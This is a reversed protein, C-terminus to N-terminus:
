EWGSYVRVLHDPNISALLGRLQDCYVSILGDSVYRSAVTRVHQSMFTFFQEDCFVLQTLSCLKGIHDLPTYTKKVFQSSAQAHALRLTYGNFLTGNWRRSSPVSGVFTGLGPELSEFELYMGLLNYTENLLEPIWLGNRDAFILDDGCCFFKVTSNIDDISLGHRWGHYAFAIMHCLSNDITTNCHGSPQGVLRLFWGAVDTYGNYMMSYYRYCRRRYQRSMGRCRWACIISAIILPFNADWQSGDACYIFKSFSKLLQHLKTIDNGPTIFQVFVPNSLLASMIYMNQKTFLETGELYASADMPRFLRADKGVLRIEDKLTSGVVATNNAYWHRLQSFGLKRVADGKTNCGYFSAPYGCAKGSHEPDLLMAEAQVPTILDTPKLPFWYDLFALAFPIFESELSAQDHRFKAVGNWLSWSDLPAIGYGEVPGREAFKSRPLPRM